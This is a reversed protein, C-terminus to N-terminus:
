TRSSSGSQPLLFARRKLLTETYLKMSTGNVQRVIRALVFPRQQQQQQLSDGALTSHVDTVAACTMPNYSNNSGVFNWVEGMVMVLDHTELRTAMPTDQSMVVWVTGHIDPRQLQEVLADLPDIKRSLISRRRLNQNGESGKKRYVLKPTKGNRNFLMSSGPKRKVGSISMKTAAPTKTDTNTQPLTPQAESLAKCGSLATETASFVNSDPATTKTATAEPPPKLTSIASTSSNGASSTKTDAGPTRPTLSTSGRRFMSRPTIHKGLNNIPQLPDGLILSRSGDVHLHQFLLVGTVRLCVNKSNNAESALPQQVQQQLRQCVEPITLIEASGFSITQSPLRQALPLNFSLPTSSSAESQNLKKRLGHSTQQALDAIAYDTSQKEEDDVNTCCISGGGDTAIREQQRSPPPLARLGGNVAAIKRTYPNATMTRTSTSTNISMVLVQHTSPHIPRVFVVHCCRRTTM